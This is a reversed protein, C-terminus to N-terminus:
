ELGGVSGGSEGRFCKWEFLLPELVRAKTTWGSGKWKERLSKDWKTDRSKKARRRMEEVEEAKGETDERLWSSLFNEEFLPKTNKSSIAKRRLCREETKWCERRPSAGCGKNDHPM